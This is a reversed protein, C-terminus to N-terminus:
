QENSFKSFYRNYIKLYAGDTEMELLAKNIKEILEGKSKNVMIGYGVGVPIGNGVLKFMTSNTAVWYKAAAEDTIVADVKGNSLAQFVETLTPYEVIQVLNKFREQVLAKFLTGEVSGVRKEHLGALSSISSSTATVFQGSSALYPLSFLFTEQRLETISIAALGIDIHNSLLDSFIQSFTLPYFSM